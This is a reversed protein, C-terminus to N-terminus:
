KKVPYKPEYMMPPLVIGPTGFKKQFKENLELVRKTEGLAEYCQVAAEYASAASETEPYTELLKLFMERAKRYLVPDNKVKAEKFVAVAASYGSRATSDLLTQIARKADAAFRSEPYDKVLQEFANIARDSKHMDLLALAKTYLSEDAKRCKPYQVLLDDFGKVAEEFNGLNYQSDALYFLADPTFKHNPYAYAFSDFLLVADRFQHMKFRCFAIYYKVEPVHISQPYQKIFEQFLDIVQSSDREHALLNFAKKFSESEAEAEKEGEPHNPAVAFIEQDGQGFSADRGIPSIPTGVREFFLTKQGSTDSYRKRWVKETRMSDSDFFVIMHDCVWESNQSGAVRNSGLGKFLSRATGMKQVPATYYSMAIDEGASNGSDSYSVKVEPSYKETELTQKAITPEVLSNAANKASGPGRSNPSALSLGAAGILAVLAATRLTLRPANRYHASMIRRIRAAAGSKRKTLALAALGTTSGSTREVVRLLSRIYGRSGSALLSLAMDDCIEERARRIERNAYWVAPHFFFVAQLIGQLRSVLLDKRRIHALEHLLIPEIEEGAWSGAIDPPLWIRPRIIGTVAPSNLWGTEMRRLEVPHRVGMECRLRELLATLDAREVPTCRELRRRLVAARILGVSLMLLASGAWVLLAFAAPSLPIHRASAPAPEQFIMPEAAVPPEPLEVGTTEPRLLIASAEPPKRFREMAQGASDRIFGQMGTPLTIEVPVCLRALVLMWLWYRFSPPANRYMREALLAIAALACVQWSVTLFHHTITEIPIPSFM